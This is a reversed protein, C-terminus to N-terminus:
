KKLKDTKWNKTTLETRYILRVWTLKQNGTLIADGITDHSFESQRALDANRASHSDLFVVRWGMIFNKIYNQGSSM